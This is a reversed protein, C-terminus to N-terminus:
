SEAEIPESSDSGDYDAKDYPKPEQKRIQKRRLPPYPATMYDGDFDIHGGRRGRRYRTRDVM